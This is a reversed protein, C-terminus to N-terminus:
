RTAGPKHSKAAAKHKGKAATRKVHRAPKRAAHKKSVPKAAHKATKHKVSTLKARAPVAHPPEALTAVVPAAPSKASATLEVASVTGFAVVGAAIWRLSKGRVIKLSLSM